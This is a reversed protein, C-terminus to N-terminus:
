GVDGRTVDFGYLWDFRHLMAGPAVRDLTRLGMHAVQRLPTRLHYNRANGNAAEIAREVRAHRATQYAPLAHALPLRGLCDALVFADELALNAGQALFPLTPHAADGILATDRGHWHTAVPHRFLGWLHVQELRALDRRVEPCFGAFAQRFADPDGPLSWGEDAWENREEVGVLNVLGGGRLPYRVLHRGPGMFVQAQAVEATVAPVLARWAVQGTFFPQVPANRHLAHRVVSHLGDAGILLDHDVGDLAGAGDQVTSVAEGFRLDVGAAEAAAGLRTILDARHVLRFAGNLAMSLVRAGTIGDSLVVARSGLSDRGVDRALGLAGLVAMGNPSIQVGAGVEGLAPARELVRVKAGKGALAIAVSLGAIGAGLVTIRKGKIM